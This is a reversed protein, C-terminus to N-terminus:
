SLGDPPLERRDRTGGASSARGPVPRTTSIGGCLLREQDAWEQPTHTGNAKGDHQLSQGTSVRRGPGGVPPIEELAEQTYTVTIRGDVAVAITGHVGYAAASM